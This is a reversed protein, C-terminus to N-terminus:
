DDQADKGEQKNINYIEKICRMYIDEAEELKGEKYLYNGQKYLANIEEEREVKQEIKAREEIELQLITILVKDYKKEAKVFENDAYLSNAQEYLSLIKVRYEDGEKNFREYLCRRVVDEIKKEFAKQRAYEIEQATRDYFKGTIRVFPGHATYDLSTLDDNFDTFNYGVGAQIFEGINRSLEILAGQKQDEAQKQTLIRYEGALQWDENINYGLRHITLWTSTKTFDFGNVKEEGMKYAIKESLQWKDTLDMVAELGLVHFREKEIDNIDTQSSPSIDELYTYKALLNLWDLNVPRYATGLSLEKFEADTADTTTNKTRSLNAKAFLTTDPNIKGELSNYFLYQRQNTDGQDLRVEAKSSAKLKLEGSEKDKDLFGLGLSGANRKDQTGDHNQVVGREFSGLVTWNNNIDGSLGYINSYTSESSNTAFSRDATLELSDNLKRKAGYVISSTRDDNISDDLTYTLHAKTKDDLQSVASLSASDSLGGTRQNARTYDASLQLKDKLKSTAGVSTATGKDGVTEKLRLSLWDFAKAVIGLSTQNNDPGQINVQQELSLDIKDTLEYDAKIAVADEETNVESDFQEKRDIVEQHRYETTLKLRDIEHIIQVSSTKTKAAGVQLRTQANGDDILEQIDHSLSIRTEPTLDWTASFGILEKGQQSSTASTSFNNAIWKYYSSLNLKHDFLYAQGKLGYAKGKSYEDTALETFSLGGDTSIFSGSSESKSEAYEATLEIDKGLHVTLDGGKLEYNERELEEKVYTGGVDIYDTLSKQIRGGATGEDYKDKVEYEYDVVVYVPNGDLLQSSIISSSETIFNVPQWFIIRGQSYDIEYDLGESMEEQGLILGTIKDRVEVTVKDSGEIIDKHRLYFLSGGTGTFENHAARQQAKAKFVIFKTNPQGFKTASVSELHIKGGYLSRSFNAFETDTLATDYNGWVAKSKDWEILLYLMGQTNTAKYNASSEDGYVPYYKDPDLNKFLEKQDRKSDFSSTILYKGKIKGKLYYSVKGESWFGERFKDDHQIPEIDGRQFSYGMKADGMAVLFLYDEGVNIKQSYDGVEIEYEGNPLIIETETYDDQKDQPSILPSTQAYLGRYGSLSFVLLSVVILKIAIRKM